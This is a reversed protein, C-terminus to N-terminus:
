MWIWSIQLVCVYQLDDENRPSLFQKRIQGQKLKSNINIDMVVRDSSSNLIIYTESDHWVWWQAAVVKEKKVCAAKMCQSKKEVKWTGNKRDTNLWQQHLSGAFVNWM